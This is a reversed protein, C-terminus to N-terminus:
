TNPRADRDVKTSEALAAWADVGSVEQVKSKSEEELRPPMVRSADGARWDVLTAEVYAQKGGNQSAEIARRAKQIATELFHQEEQPLTENEHAQEAEQIKRAMDAKRQAEWAAQGGAKEVEAAHQAATEPTISQSRWEEYGGAAAIEENRSEKYARLKAAFDKADTSPGFLAALKERFREKNRLQSEARERARLFALKIGEEETDVLGRSVYRKAGALAKAYEAAAERTIEHEARRIQNRRENTIQEEIRTPTTAERIEDEETTLQEAAVEAAAKATQEVVAAPNPWQLDIEEQPLGLAAADARMRAIVEPRQLLTWRLAWGTPGLEKIRHESQKLLYEDLGGERDITKLVKATVRLKIRKKLAVSYLSKSLVNPKWNRRTKTETDPSVNNGFQIMQRGYLGKNAQKFLLNPGYPYAPIDADKPIVHKPLHSGLDGGRRRALPNKCLASSTTFSRQTSQPRRLLINPNSLSGSLLQCRPPM